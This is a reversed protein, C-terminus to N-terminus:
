DEESQVRFERAAKIEVANAIIKDIEEMCLEVGDEIGTFYLCNERSAEKRLSSQRQKTYNYKLALFTNKILAYEPTGKFNEMMAGQQIQIDEQVRLDATM